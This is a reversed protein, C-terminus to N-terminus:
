TSGRPEDSEDNADDIDCNYDPNLGSGEMASPEADERTVGASAVRWVVSALTTGVSCAVAVRSAAWGDIHSVGGGGGGVGSKLSIMITMSLPSYM